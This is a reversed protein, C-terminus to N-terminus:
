RSPLAKRDSSLTTKSIVIILESLNQYPEKHEGARGALPIYATSKTNVSLLLHMSLTDQWDIYACPEYLELQMM